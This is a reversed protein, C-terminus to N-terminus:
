AEDRRRKTTAWNGGFRRRSKQIQALRRLKQIAKAHRQSVAAETIGVVKGAEKHNLGDIYILKFVEKGRADLQSLLSRIFSPNANGPPPAPVDFDDGTDSLKKTIEADGVIAIFERSEPKVGMHSAVEEPTPAYGKKTTLESAALKYKKSRRQSLRPVGGKDRVFDMMRGVIRHQAYTAFKVGREPDFSEILSLLAIAGEQSADAADEGATNAVM